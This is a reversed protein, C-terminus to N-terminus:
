LELAVLFVFGACSFSGVGGGGKGSIQHHAGLM